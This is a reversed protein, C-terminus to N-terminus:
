KSRRKKAVPMPPQAMASAVLKEAPPEAAKRLREGERKFMAQLSERRLGLGTGDGEALEFGAHRLHLVTPASVWLDHSKNFGFSNWYEDFGPLDKNPNGLVANKLAHEFSKTQWLYFRNQETSGSHKMALAFLQVAQSKYSLLPSRTAFHCVGAIESPSAVVRLKDCDLNFGPSKVDGEITLVSQPYFEKFHKEEGLGRLDQEVSEERRREQLVKLHRSV